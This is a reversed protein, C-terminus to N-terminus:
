VDIINGLVDIKVKRLKSDKLGGLVVEETDIESFKIDKVYVSLTENSRYMQAELVVAVDIVDGKKFQFEEATCGFKMCNISATDKKLLLRLHKGNGVPTINELTMGCLAFIPQPNDSGFPELHSILKPMDVSLSSPKLKCDITLTSIPIEGDLCYSNIKKRFDDIKSPLVTLGAAM